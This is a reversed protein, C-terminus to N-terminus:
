VVDPTHNSIHLAALLAACSVIASSDVIAQKFYREISALMSPETIRALVRVANARYVDVPSGLEKVLSNIIVFSNEASGSLDKLILYMM